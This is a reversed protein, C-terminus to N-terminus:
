VASSLESVLVVRVPDGRKESLMAVGDNADDLPLRASISGSLDLRGTAVLSLLTELHARSYGYAARLQTRSIAFLASPGLQIKDGGVGVVIARGDVALSKVASKLVANAGVFDLAVDVGEGTAEKIVAAADTALPDIVLDAGLRKARDRAGANPDVAAVFSAGVLRAIMVGHTGLGGVGFVAVREGPRVQAVDVIANFPTGVADCLIAAQDLPVEDPVRVLSAVPVAVYEAWAGDYDIGMTLSLACREVEGGARCRMCEGCRRGPFISVRDGDSWGSVDAGMGAIVGSPEHGPTFPVVGRNPLSGDFIHLDSACIGCAAVQVLVEDRSPEPVPLDEITLPRGVGHFRVAKM